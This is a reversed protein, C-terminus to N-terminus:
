GSHSWFFVFISLNIYTINPPLASHSCVFFPFPGSFKTPRHKKKHDGVPFETPSWLFFCLGVSSNVGKSASYLVQRPSSISTGLSSWIVAVVTSGYGGYCGRVLVVVIMTDSRYVIQGVVQTHVSHIAFAYGVFLDRSRPGDSCAHNLVPESCRADSRDPRASPPTIYYNNDNSGTTLSLTDRRM